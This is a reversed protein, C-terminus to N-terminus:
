QSGLPLPLAPPVGTVAARVVRAVEAHLAELDLPKELYADAGAELIRERANGEAYGTMAIIKTTRSVPDAKVHRCVQFGDLRPMHLDLVLVHPRFSGLRILGEYGDAALAVEYTPEVSLVDFLTTRLNPDDDVVLLRIREEVVAPMQQKAKFRALEEDTIRVHGGATRFGSLHGERMWRKVTPISVQLDGAAEGTTLFRM